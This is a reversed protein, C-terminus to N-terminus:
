DVAIKALTTSAMSRIRFDPHYHELWILERKINGDANKPIVAFLRFVVWEQEKRLSDVWRDSAKLIVNSIQENFIERFSATSFAYIINISSFDKTDVRYQPSLLFELYKTMLIPSWVSLLQTINVTNEEGVAYSGRKTQELKYMKRIEAEVHSAWKTLSNGYLEFDLEELKDIWENLHGDYIEKEIVKYAMPMNARLAISLFSYLGRDFRPIKDDLVKKLYNEIVKKCKPAKNDIIEDDTYQICEKVIKEKDTAAYIPICGLLFLLLFIRM